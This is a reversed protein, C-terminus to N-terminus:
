AVLDAEAGGAGVRQHKLFLFLPVGAAATGGPPRVLRPVSIPWGDAFCRRDKMASRRSFPADHDGQLLLPVVIVIRMTSRREAASPAGSPSASPAAVACAAANVPVAVAVAAGNRSGVQSGETDRRPIM